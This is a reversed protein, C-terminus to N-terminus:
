SNADEDILLECRAAGCAEGNGSQLEASEVHRNADMDLYPQMPPNPPTAM